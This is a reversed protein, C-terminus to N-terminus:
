ITEVVKANAAIAVTKKTSIILQEVTKANLMAVVLILASATRMAIAVIVVTLASANTVNATAVVVIEM